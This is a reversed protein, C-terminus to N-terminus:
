MGQMLKQMWFPGQVSQEGACMPACAVTDPQRQRSRLGGVVVAHMHPVVREQSLQHVRLHGVAVKVLVVLHPAGAM